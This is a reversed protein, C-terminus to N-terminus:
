QLEIIPNKIIFRVKIEKEPSLRSAQNGDACGRLVNLFSKKDISKLAREKKIVSPGAEKLKKSVVKQQERVANFLQVVGKTALKM